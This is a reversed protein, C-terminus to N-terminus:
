AHQHSEHRLTSVLTDLRAARPTRVTARRPRASAARAARLTPLRAALTSAFRREAAAFRRRPPGCCIPAPGRPPRPGGTWLRDDYLTSKGPRRAPGPRGAGGTPARFVAPAATAVERVSRPM